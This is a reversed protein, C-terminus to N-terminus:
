YQPSTSVPQQSLQGVPQQGTSQAGGGQQTWRSIEPHAQNITTSLTQAYQVVEQVDPDQSYQQLDQISQQLAQETCNAVIGAVPSQGQILQKQLRAIRALGDAHKAVEHIGQRMSKAHAWEAVNEFTDLTTVLEQIPIPAQQSFGQGLTKSLEQPSRQGFQGGMQGTQGTQFTQGQGTGQM